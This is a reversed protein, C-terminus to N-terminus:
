TPSVGALVKNGGLHTRWRESDGYRGVWWMCSTQICTPPARSLIGGEWNAMYRSSSRKGSTGTSFHACMIFAGGTNASMTGPSDPPAMFCQQASRMGLFQQQQLVCTLFCTPSVSVGRM